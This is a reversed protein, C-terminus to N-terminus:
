ESLKIGTELTINNISREGRRISNITNTSVDLDKNIQYSSIDSKILQNINEINIIM